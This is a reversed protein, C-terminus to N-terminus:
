LVTIVTVVDELKRTSNLVKKLFLANVRVYYGWQKQEWM